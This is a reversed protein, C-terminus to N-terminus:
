RCRWDQGWQCGEDLLSIRLPLHHHHHGSALKFKSLPFLQSLNAVLSQYAKYASCLFKKKKMNWKSIQLNQLTYVNWWMGARSEMLVRCTADPGQLQRLSDQQTCYFGHQGGGLNRWLSQWGQIAQIIPIHISTASLSSIKRKTHKMISVGSKVADNPNPWWTDGYLWFCKARTPDQCIQALLFSEIRLFLFFLTITFARGWSRQIRSEKEAALFIECICISAACSRASQSSELHDSPTQQQCRCPDLHLAELHLRHSRPRCIPISIPDAHIWVIQRVPLKSDNMVSMVSM